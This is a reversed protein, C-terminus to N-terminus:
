QPPRGVRGRAWDMSGRLENLKAQQAPTLQDKIRVLLAIQARKMERELSLVRDVQELVQAEDPAAAQVLRMLKENELAMKFQIDLTAAQATLVAKQISARQPDQLGIADQNQMVLEPPFFANDMATKERLKEILTRVDDAYGPPLQGGGGGGSRGRAGGQAGLPLAVVCLALAILSRM